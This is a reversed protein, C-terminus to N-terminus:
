IIDKIYTAKNTPTEWLDVRYCHPVKHCIWRALNEATPNDFPFLEEGSLENFNQHDLVGHVMRKIISFDILMGRNEDIISDEGRCYIKVKWSHGHIKNCPSNYPLNLHHAGNIEIDKEIEFM